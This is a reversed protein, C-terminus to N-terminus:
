GHAFDQLHQVFYLDLWEPNDAEVAAIKWDRRWRKMSQEARLADERLAFGEYWVLKHLNYKSSFAQPYIRNKHEWVRRSLDDTHGIYLTGRPKNTLLYIVFM